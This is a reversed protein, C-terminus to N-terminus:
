TPLVALLANLEKVGVEHGRRERLLGRTTLRAIETWAALVARPRTRAGLRLGVIVMLMWLAVGGLETSGRRRDRALQAAVGAGAPGVPRELSMALGDGSPGARVSAAHFGVWLPQALQDSAQDVFARGAV